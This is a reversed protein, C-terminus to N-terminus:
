RGRGGGGVCVYAGVRVSNRIGAGEGPDEPITDRERGRSSM